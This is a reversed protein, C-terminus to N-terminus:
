KAVEKALDNWWQAVRRIAARHTLYRREWHRRRIMQMLQGAPAAGTEAFWTLFDDPPEVKDRDARVLREEERTIPPQYIGRNDPVHMGTRVAEARAAAPSPLMPTDLSMRRHEEVIARAEAHSVHGNLARELVEDRVPEPVKPAAILCLASVDIDLHSLKDSKIRAYVNMFRQATRKNWAFERGIWGLFQGHGVQERAESLWQGIQVISQATLRALQHIRAARDQLFDRTGTDLAAYDFAQETTVAQREAM